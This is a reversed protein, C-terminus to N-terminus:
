KPLVPPEERTPLRTREAVTKKEGREWRALRVTPGCYHVVPLSFCSKKPFVSAKEETLPTKYKITMCLCDTSFSPGLQKRLMAAQQLYTPDQIQFHSM